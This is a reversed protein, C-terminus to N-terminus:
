PHSSSWRSADGNEFGDRFCTGYEAAGVDPPSSRPRGWLDDAPAGAPTGAGRAPSVALLNLDFSALSPDALRPDQGCIADAGPCPDDKVQWFLSTTFSMPDTPTGAYYLCTNEWPQRWDVDGAFLTNLVTVTEGGECSGDRCEVEVLCDGQGALTSNVLTSVDDQFPAFALTNGYARCHDGESMLPSAGDFFACNGVLLANTVTAPGAVKLQNGANGEAIVRRVEV